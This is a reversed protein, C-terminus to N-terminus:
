GDGKGLVKAFHIRGVFLGDKSSANRKLSKGQARATGTIAMESARLPGAALGMCEAFKIAGFPLYSRGM